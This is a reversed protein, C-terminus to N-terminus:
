YFQVSNVGSPTAVRVRGSPVTGTGTVTQGVSLGSLINRSYGEGGGLTFSDNPAPLNTTVHVIPVADRDIITINLAADTLTISFNVSSSGSGGDGDGCAAMGFGIVTIIAIVTLLKFAKKM